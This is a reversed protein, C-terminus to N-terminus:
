RFRASRKHTECYFIGRLFMRVRIIHAEQSTPDSAIIKMDPYEDDKMPEIDAYVKRFFDAIHRCARASWSGDCDSHEFFHSIGPEDDQLKVSEMDREVLQRFRFFANYGGSFIPFGDSAELDLGMAINPLKQFIGETKM